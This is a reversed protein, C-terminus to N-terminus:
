IILTSGSYNPSCVVPAISKSASPRAEFTIVTWCSCRAPRLAQRTLGAPWRVIESMHFAGCTLLSASKVCDPKDLSCPLRDYNGPHPMDSPLQSGDRKKCQKDTRDHWVAVHDGRGLSGRAAYCDNLHAGLSACRHHRDIEVGTFLDIQRRIRFRGLVVRRLFGTHECCSRMHCSRNRVSARDDVQHRDIHAKRNRRVQARAAADSRWRGRCGARRGQDSRCAGASEKRRKARACARPGSM